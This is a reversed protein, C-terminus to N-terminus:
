YGSDTSRSDRGGAWFCGCNPAGARTAIDRAEDIRSVLDAGRKGAATRGAMGATMGNSARSVSRKINAPLISSYNAFDSPDPATNRM